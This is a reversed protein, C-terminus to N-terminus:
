NGSQGRTKRTRRLAEGWIPEVNSAYIVHYATMSQNRRPDARDPILQNALFFHDLRKVLYQMAHQEVARWPGTDVGAMLRRLQGLNSAGLRKVDYDCSLMDASDYRYPPQDGLEGRAVVWLNGSDNLVWYIPSGLRLRWFRPSKGRFLRWNVPDPTRWREHFRYYDWDVHVIAARDEIPVAGDDRSRGGNAPNRPDDDWFLPPITRDTDDSM